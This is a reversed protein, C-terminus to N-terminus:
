SLKVHNSKLRIKLQFNTAVSINLATFSSTAFFELRISSELQDWSIRLQFFLSYSWFLKYIRSRDRLWTQSVLKKSHRNLASLRSCIFSQLCRKISVRIDGCLTCLSWYPSEHRIMCRQIYVAYELVTRNNSAVILIRMISYDNEWIDGLISLPNTWFIFFDHHRWFSKM